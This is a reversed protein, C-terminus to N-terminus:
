DEAPVIQGNKSIVPDIGRARLEARAFPRMTRPKRFLPLALRTWLPFRVPPNVEVVFRELRVSSCM